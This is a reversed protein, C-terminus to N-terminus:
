DKVQADPGTGIICLRYVTEAYNNDNSDTQKYRFSSVKSKAEIIM